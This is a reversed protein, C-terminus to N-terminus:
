NPCQAILINLKGGRQVATNRKYNLFIKILNLPPSYLFCPESLKFGLASLWHLFGLWTRPIRLLLSGAWLVSGASTELAVQINLVGLEESLWTGQFNEM